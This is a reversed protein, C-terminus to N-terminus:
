HELTKREGIIHDIYLGLESNNMLNEGKVGTRGCIDNVTIGKEKEYIKSLHWLPEEDTWGNDLKFIDDTIYLQEWENVLNQIEPHQLNYGVFAGNPSSGTDHRHPNLRGLYTLMTDQPLLNELFTKPIRRFTYTDADLWIVYDYGPSSKIAHTMSFAKNAFRVAHWLYSGEGENDQPEQPLFSMGNRVGPTRRVGGPIAFSNPQGNAVPDDKHRQKFKVLEPQAEHLDIWKVRPHKFIDKTQAEHYIYIDIDNPWNDLISQISRKTFTDFTGPKYSTIVKIKM